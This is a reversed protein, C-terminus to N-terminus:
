AGFWQTAVLLYAGPDLNHVLSCSAASFQSRSSQLSFTPGLTWIVCKVVYQRGFTDVLSNELGLLMIMSVWAEPGPHHM